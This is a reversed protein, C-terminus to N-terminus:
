EGGRIAAYPELRTATLAPYLATLVGVAVTLATLMIMRSLVFGAASLSLEGYLRATNAFLLWAASSAMGLIGGMAGLVAAEGIILRFVFANGAGMAKLLGFERKREHVTLAFMAGTVLLVGIVVLAAAYTSGGGQLVGYLQDNITKLMEPRAIVEIGSLNAELRNIVADMFVGPKLRLLIWSTEAMHGETLPLFIATDMFTGTERLRGSVAFKGDGLEPIDGPLKDASVKAGLVIGTSRGPFKEPNKELWPYVVFDTSPEFVVLTAQGTALVAKGTRKQGTAAEIEPFEKLQEITGAPVVGLVPPGETLYLQGGAKTGLPVVALDPEQLRNARRLEEQIGGSMFVAVFVMTVALAVAFVIIANYAKRGKLNKLVLRWM